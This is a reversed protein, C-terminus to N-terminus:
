GTPAERKQEHIMSEYVRIMNRGCATCESQEIIVPLAPPELGKWHRAWKDFGAPTKVEHRRERITGGCQCVGEM